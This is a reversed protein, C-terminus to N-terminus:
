KPRFDRKELSFNADKISEVMQDVISPCVSLREAVVCDVWGVRRM